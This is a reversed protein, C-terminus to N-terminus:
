DDLDREWKNCSQYVKIKKLGNETRNSATIGCYQIFRGGCEWRQRHLCNGCVKNPDLPKEPFLVKQEQESCKIELLLENEQKTM